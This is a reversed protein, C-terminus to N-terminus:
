LVPKDRLVLHEFRRHERIRLDLVLSTKARDPQGRIGLRVSFLRTGDTRAVPPMPTTPTKDPLDERRVTPLLPSSRKSETIEDFLALVHPGTLALSLM